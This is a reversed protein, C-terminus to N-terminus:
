RNTLLFTGFIFKGSLCQRHDVGLEPETKRPPFSVLVPNADSQIVLSWPAEQPHCQTPHIQLIPLHHRKVSGFFLVMSFIAGGHLVLLCRFLTVACACWFHCDDGWTGSEARSDTSELAVGFDPHRQMLPM